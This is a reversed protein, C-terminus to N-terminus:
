RVLMVRTSGSVTEGELRVIYTGATLSTGDVRVIEERNAPAWGDFLLGVERGTVDFLRVLVYQATSVRFRVSTTPNFPNPRASELLL